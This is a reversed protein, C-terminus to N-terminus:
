VVQPVPYHLLDHVSWLQDTLNLAMAPSHPRFRRKLGPVELALSEHARVFHSYLRFWECHLLLHRETQAYAWTRRLSPLSPNLKAGGYLPLLRGRLFPLRKGAKACRKYSGAVLQVATM